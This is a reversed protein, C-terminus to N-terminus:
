TPTVFVDLAVERELTSLRKLSEDTLAPGAAVAAIGHVLSALEYGWPLGVYGLGPGFSIAPYLGPEAHEVVELRVRSTLSAIEELLTRTEGCTDIERGGAALLSVPTEVPGVELRVDVDRELASFIEVLAAQERDGLM